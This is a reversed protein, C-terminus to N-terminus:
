GRTFGEKLAKELKDAPIFGPKRTKPHIVRVKEAAPPAGASADVGPKVKGLIELDMQPGKYGQLTENEQYYEAKAKKAEYARRLDAIKLEMIRANAEPGLAENYYERAAAEREADSLQGGFLEKLTSNAFNRAQDRQEIFNRSKLFDPAAATIAGGEDIAFTEYKKPDPKKLSKSLGSLKEITSLTNVGKTTFDVYEKAYAKDVAQQGLTGKAKKEERDLRAQERRYRERESSADKTAKIQAKALEVDEKREAARLQNGLKKNIFDATLKRQNTSDFLAEKAQNEAQRRQAEIGSTDAKQGALAAGMQTIGQIMALDSLTEDRQSRASTVAPNESQMWEPLELNAYPDAPEMSPAPTGAADSMKAIDELEEFPDKYPQM